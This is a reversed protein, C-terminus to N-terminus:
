VFGPLFIDKPSFRSLERVFVPSKNEYPVQGATPQGDFEGKKESVCHLPAKFDFM